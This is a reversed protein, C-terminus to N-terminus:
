PDKSLVYLHDIDSRGLLSALDGEDDSYAWGGGSM